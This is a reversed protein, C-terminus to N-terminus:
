GKGGSVARERARLEAQRRRLDERERQIEAREAETDTVVRLGLREALLETLRQSRTAWCWAGAYAFPFRWATKSEATWSDLQVKTVEVGLAQGMRGAIEFRSLGCEAVDRNLADRVAGDLNMEGERVDRRM